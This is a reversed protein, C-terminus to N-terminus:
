IEAGNDLLNIGKTVLEINIDDAGRISLKYIAGNQCDEPEQGLRILIPRGTCIVTNNPLDSLTERVAKSLHKNSLCNELDIILGNALIVQKEGNVEILSEPGGWITSTLTATPVFNLAAATDIHRKGMGM